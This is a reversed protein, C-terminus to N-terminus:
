RKLFKSIYIIPKYNAFNFLEPCNHLYINFFYDVFVKKGM